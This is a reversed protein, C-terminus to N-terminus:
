CWGYNVGGLGTWPSRSCILTSKMFQWPTQYVKPSFQWAYNRIWPDKLGKAALAKVHKQLKPHDLNYERWDPCKWDVAHESLLRIWPDKLGKAALAKVHKQLKPHDLNYERWDPCKWDVAHESLLRTSLRM